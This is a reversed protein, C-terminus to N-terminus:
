ARKELFSIRDAVARELRDIERSAVMLQKQIRGLIEEDHGFQEARGSLVRSDKGLKEARGSLNNLRNLLGNGMTNVMLKVGADPNQVLNHVKAIM